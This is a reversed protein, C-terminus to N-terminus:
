QENSDEKCHIREILDVDLFKSIAEIANISMYKSGNRCRSIYGLSLNVGRELDGLSIDRRICEMTIEKAYKKSEDSYDDYKM